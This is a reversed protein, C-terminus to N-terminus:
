RQSWRVTSSTMQFLMSWLAPGERPGLYTWSMWHRWHQRYDCLIWECMANLCPECNMLFYLRKFGMRHMNFSRIVSSFGSGNWKLTLTIYYVTHWSLLILNGNDWQVFNSSSGCNVATPQEKTPLLTFPTQCIYWASNIIPWVCWHCYWLAAHAHSFHM